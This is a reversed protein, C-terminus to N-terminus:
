ACIINAEVCCSAIYPFRDPHIVERKLGIVVGGISQCFEFLDSNNCGRFHINSSASYSWSLLVVYKPACRVLSSIHSHLFTGRAHDVTIEDDQYFGLM